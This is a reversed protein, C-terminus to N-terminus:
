GDIRCTKGEYKNRKSFEQLVVVFIGLMEVSFMHTRCQFCYNFRRGTVTSDSRVAAVAYSGFIGRVTGGDSRASRLRQCPVVGLETGRNAPREHVVPRFNLDATVSRAEYEGPLPEQIRSKLDKLCKISFTSQDLVEGDEWGSANAAGAPLEEAVSNKLEFLRLLRRRQKDTIKGELRDVIRFESSTCLYKQHCRLTGGSM